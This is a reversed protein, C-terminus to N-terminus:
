LIELIIVISSLVSAAGERRGRLDDDQGNILVGLTHCRDAVQSCVWLFVLM